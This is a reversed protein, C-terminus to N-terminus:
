GGRRVGPLVEACIKTVADVLEEYSARDAASRVSETGGCALSQDRVALGFQVVGTGPRLPEGPLIIAPSFCALATDYGQQDLERCETVYESRWSAGQATLYRQTAGDFVAALRTVSTEVDPAGGVAVTVAKPPSPVSWSCSVTARGAGTSPASAGSSGSSSFRTRAEAGVVPEVAPSFDECFLDTRLSVPDPPTDEGLVMVAAAGAVVAGVTLLGLLAAVVGRPVRLSRRPRRPAPAPPAPPREVELVEPVAPAVLAGIGAETWWTKGYARKAAKGLSALLASADRPRDLPDPALAGLLVTRLASDVARLDRSQDGVTRGTLLHVLLAAAAYVDATPRLETVPVDVAEPALYAPEPEGVGFDTVRAHGDTGLLVTALSIRGHVLGQDHAAALGALMGRAVGLRQGVVLTAGSALVEALTAGEVWDTVLWSTGDAALTGHVRVVGADDIAALLGLQRERAEGPEGDPLRRLALVAGTRPDSVRLVRGDGLQGLVDYGGISGSGNGGHEGM